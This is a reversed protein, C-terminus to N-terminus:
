VQVPSVQTVVTTISHSSMKSSCSSLMRQHLARAVQFSAPTSAQHPPMTDMFKNAPMQVAKELVM